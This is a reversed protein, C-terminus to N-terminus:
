VRSFRTVMRLVENGDVAGVVASIDEEDFDKWLKSLMELFWTQLLHPVGRFEFNGMSRSRVTRIRGDHQPIVLISESQVFERNFISKPIGDEDEHGIEGFHVLIESSERLLNVLSKSSLWIDGAKGLFLNKPDGGCELVVEAVESEFEPELKEKKILGAQETAWRGLRKVDILVSAENRAVTTPEGILVGALNLVGTATMGGVTVVAAQTFEGSPAIMARGVLEGREDFIPRMLRSISKPVFGRHMSDMFPFYRDCLKNPELTRWDSARVALEDEVRVNVDITPAIAAVIARFAPQRKKRGSSNQFPLLDARELAVEVKTGGDVPAEDLSPRYLVPRSSLGATFELVLSQDEGQDYPRTIVRVISGLMFVSFFGVGFRGVPNIGLAALGPFEEHLLPSSWFSVGFDILPGALVRESMGVGNDEVSLWRKGDREFSALKILGWNRARKQRRRRADIADRGNQILERIAVLPDDGYLKKGGFSDIIRPISSAHIKSEVPKWGVVPVLQSFLDPSGAGKVRNASFEIKLRERLLRNSDMLEKEAYVISEYALWWASAENRPFRDSATFVLADGELHPSALKGQFVWHDLSTGTPHNLARKFLSARRRDLHIADAVRLLCALKLRDVPCRTYPPFAGLPVLFETEVRDIPWWHSFALLGISRGYFRRLEVEDILFLKEGDELFFPQMPLDGAKQAHLKRLVLSILEKETLKNGVEDFPLAALDNWITTSKLDKVRNPYSALSMGADHLLISAGFVFAEAPNLEVSNGAILTAMDWLADLHTIDHVTLGPIDAEISAVLMSAKERLLQYQTQFFKQEDRGSDTRREDFAQKWLKTEQYTTFPM